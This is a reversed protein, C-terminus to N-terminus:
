GRRAYLRAAARLEAAVARRLEPPGLVTCQAGWGLVWPLLERWSTVTLTLRIAGDDADELRQSPHWRTERVRPAVEPSFRLEVTDPEGPGLWIGWARDIRKLLTRLPPAEFRGDTLGARSVREVKLVRIEGPPEAHGVAYVASGVASPELLYPRFRYRRTGDGTRPTYSLLVERGLIWGRALANFSRSFRSTRGGRRATLHRFAPRIAEPVVEALRALAGRVAPNPEDSSRELLRAALYVAAAEEIQLNVPPVEMRAAEVLRWGRQEHVVPLRGSSSLEAIYKRVTREAIGLHEAIERTRRIRRPQRWFLTQLEVLRSAKSMADCYVM